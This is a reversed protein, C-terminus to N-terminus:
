IGFALRMKFGENRTINKGTKFSTSGYGLAVYIAFNGFKAKGGILGDYAFSGKTEASSYLTYGPEVSLFLSGQPNNPMMFLIANAKIVGYKTKDFVFADGVAGIALLKNANYSAGATLGFNGGNHSNGNFTGGGFANIKNQAFATNAILLFLILKKM